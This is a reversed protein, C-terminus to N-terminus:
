CVMLYICLNIHADSSHLSWGWLSWLLNPYPLDLTVLSPMPLSNYATCLTDVAAYLTLDLPQEM